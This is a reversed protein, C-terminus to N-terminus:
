IRLTASVNPTPSLTNAIHQEESDKGIRVATASAVTALAIRSCKGLSFSAIASIVLIEFFPPYAIM